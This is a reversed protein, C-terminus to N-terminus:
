VQQIFTAGNAEYTVTHVGTSLDVSRRYSTSTSINVMKVTLNGLVEYEGYNNVSGMIDTYDVMTM